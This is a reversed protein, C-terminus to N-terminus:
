CLSPHSSPLTLTPTLPVWGWFLGGRKGCYWGWLHTHVVAPTHSHTPAHWVLSVSYQLWTNHHCPQKEFTFVVSLLSYHLLISGPSSLIPPPPSHDLSSSTFCLVLPPFASSQVSSKKKKFIQKPYYLENGPCNWWLTQTVRPKRVKM